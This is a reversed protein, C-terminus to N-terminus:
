FMDWNSAAKRVTYGRNLTEKLMVSVNWILIIVAYYLLRTGQALKSHYDQRCNSYAVHM